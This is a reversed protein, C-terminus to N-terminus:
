FNLFYLRLFSPSRFERFNAFLALRNGRNIFVISRPEALAMAASSPDLEMVEVFVPISPALSTWPCFAQLSPRIAADPSGVRAPNHRMERM